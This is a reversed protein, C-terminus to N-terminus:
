RVVVVWNPDKRQKDQLISLAKQAANMQKQDWTIVGKSIAAIDNLSLLPLTVGKVLFHAKVAGLIFYPTTGCQALSRIMIRAEDPVSAKRTAM